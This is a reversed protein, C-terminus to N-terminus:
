SEHRSRYRGPSEGFWSRFARGFNSPDQYGLRWSISSVSMTSHLLYDTALTKRVDELLAQYSTHGRKLRRILTRTSVHQSAAIEALGPIKGPHALLAQRVAFEAPLAGLAAQIEEECRMLLYRHMAQDHLICPEALWAAPFSLSHGSANFSLKPHLADELQKRYGPEPYAFAIHAERIERGLPRELLSQLSMVALELMANREDGLSTAEYLRIVFQEKEQAGALWLFPGRIGIFRLLVEVSARLDPATVVAFGLPGHAPVTLRPGMSLHWGPGMINTVNSLVQRTDALSVARDSQLLDERALATGALLAAASLNEAAAYQLFVKLYAAPLQMNQDKVFM